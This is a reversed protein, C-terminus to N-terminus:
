RDKGDAAKEAKQRDSVVPSKVFKIDKFGVVELELRWAQISFYPKKDQLATRMAEAETTFEAGLVPVGDKFEGGFYRVSTENSRKSKRGPKGKQSSKEVAKQVGTNVVTPVTVM